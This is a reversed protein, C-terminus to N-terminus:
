RSAYVPIWLPAPLRSEHSAVPSHRIGPKVTTLALVPGQIFSKVNRSRLVRIHFINSHSADGVSNNQPNLSIIRPFFKLMIGPM